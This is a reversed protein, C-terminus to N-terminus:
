VIHSILYDYVNSNFKNKYVQLYKKLYSDPSIADQWPTYIATETTRGGNTAPHIGMLYNEIVWSGGAYGYKQSADYVGELVSPDYEVGATGVITKGKSSVEAIPITARWLNDTREYRSPEYNEYYRELVSMSFKYIDETAINVANVVAQLLIPQANKALEKLIDNITRSKAMVM